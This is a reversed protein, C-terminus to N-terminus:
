PGYRERFAPGSKIYYRYYDSNHYVINHEFPRGRSDYTIRENYFVASNSDMGLLSRVEPAPIRAEITEDCSGIEMGAARLLAFLSTHEDFMGAKLKVPIHKSLYSISLAVKQDNVLRIRDLCYVHENERLNLLHATKKGAPEEAFRLIISGAKEVKRLDTTFSTLRSWYFTNKYNRIVTGRGAIREVYGERELEELAKRVTVRSVKFFSQLESESHLMDGEVYRDDEIARRIEAYIQFYKPVPSSIDIQKLVFSKKGSM